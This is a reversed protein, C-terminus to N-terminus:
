EKAESRATPWPPEARRGRSRMVTILRKYVPLQLSSSTQKYWGCRDVCPRRRLLRQLGCLAVALDPVGHLGGGHEVDERAVV